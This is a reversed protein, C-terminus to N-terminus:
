PKSPPEYCVQNHMNWSLVWAIHPNKSESSQLENIKKRYMRMSDSHAESASRGRILLVGIRNSCEFFPKADEDELPKRLSEERHLFAFDDQYGVFSKAGSKMLKPGLSKGAGCARIFINKDKMERFFYHKM